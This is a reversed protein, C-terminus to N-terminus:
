ATLVIPKTVGRSEMAAHARGVDRLAYEVPEELKLWGKGLAQLLAAAIRERPAPESAYHFVIPRSITASKAALQPM